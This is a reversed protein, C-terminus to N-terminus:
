RASGAASEPVVAAPPASGSVVWASRPVAEVLVAVAEVLVAVAEVLVAAAEQQQDEPPRQRCHRWHYCRRHRCPLLPPPPLPPLPPAPGASGDGVGGMGGPRTLSAGHSLFRATPKGGFGAASRKAVIPDPADYLGQQLRERRRERAPVTTVTSASTSRTSRLNPRALQSGGPRPRRALQRVGPTYTPWLWTARATPTPWAALTGMAGFDVRYEHINDMFLMAGISTITPLVMCFGSVWYPWGGQPPIGPLWVPIGSATRTGTRRTTAGPPHEFATRFVVRITQTLCRVSIM